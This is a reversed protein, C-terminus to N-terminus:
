RVEQFGLGDGIWSTVHDTKSWSALESDFESDFGDQEGWIGLELLIGQLMLIWTPTPLFKRSGLPNESGFVAGCTPLFPHLVEGLFVSNPVIPLDGIDM